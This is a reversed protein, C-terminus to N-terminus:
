DNFIKLYVEKTQKSVKDWSFNEARRLALDSLKKQLSKNLLVEEAIKSFQTKDTPNFYLAAEGGVEKLSDTDSCIVPAGCSLAELVPLGFGEYFSPQVYLTALNYFAVLEEKEVRGVRKVEGDLKFDKILSNVTKISILEPHDFDEVQKLFAGGILILNLNSLHPNKKLQKFGEILFPLNKVWNVDGVYLLFQDALNYKRKVKLLKSDSLIKFDKDSALPISYIKEDKIKLVKIIDKKSIVSDTIIADVSRLALKQLIFNVRGRLGVPYHTPFLLPIVDHITVCTKYKRKIPLTHFYFDFWPYHLLDVDKVVGIDTFEEIELFSDQKLSELLHATYYGIGRDKHATKLPKINLAIKLM